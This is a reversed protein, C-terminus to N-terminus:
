TMLQAQRRRSSVVTTSGTTWSMQVSSGAAQEISAVGRTNSTTNSWLKTQGSGVTPDPPTSAGIFVTDFVLENGTLSNLTVSQTTGTSSSNAGGSSTFPTTLDVGAFNAAGAVIGNTVAGSFTVTVTGSTNQPPETPSYWIAAFRQATSATEQVVKQSLNLTNSGYTFTVSSITRTTSGCNWSAGVLLLRNVGTGTTHSFSVSTANAAGIANSATGDLTVVASEVFNATVTKSGNM